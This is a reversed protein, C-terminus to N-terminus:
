KDLWYKRIQPEWSPFTTLYESNLADDYSIGLKYQIFQAVINPSLKDTRGVPFNPYHKIGWKCWEDFEKLEEETLPKKIIINM